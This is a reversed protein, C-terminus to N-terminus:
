AHSNEGEKNMGDILEDVLVKDYLTRRGIKRALGHEKAWKSTYTKGMGIYECLEEINMM